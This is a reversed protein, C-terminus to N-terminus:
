EVKGLETLKDEISAFTVPDLKSRLHETIAQAHKKGTKNGTLDLNENALCHAVDELFSVRCSVLGYHIVRKM